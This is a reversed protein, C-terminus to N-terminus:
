WSGSKPCAGDGGKDCTRTVKGDAARSVTFTTGSKAKAAV